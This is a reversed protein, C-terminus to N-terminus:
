APKRGHLRLIQALASRLKLRSVIMDLSGNKLLWEATQFEPPTKQRITQEIVRRGAFGIAAGPEAIILDALSAFSASVGGTTPDAL